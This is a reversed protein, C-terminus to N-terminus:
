WPLGRAHAGQDSKGDGSDIEQSTPDPRYPSRQRNGADPYGQGDFPPGHELVPRFSGFPIDKNQPELRHQHDKPGGKQGRDQELCDNFLRSSNPDVHGTRQRLPRSFM